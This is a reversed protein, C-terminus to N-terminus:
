LRVLLFGSSTHPLNGSGTLTEVGCDVLSPFYHWCTRYECNGCIYWVNTYLHISKANYKGINFVASIWFMSIFFLSFSSLLLYDIISRSESFWIQSTVQYHLTDVVIHFWVKKTWEISFDAQYNRSLIYLTIVIVYCSIM